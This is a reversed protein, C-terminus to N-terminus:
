TTSGVAERVATGLCARGVAVLDGNDASVDVDIVGVTRGIRRTIARATLATGIAPRLYDTHLSITPVGQRLVCSAAFCAVTDILSAIAGGHIQTSGSSREVFPTMPLRMTMVGAAHNWELAVIQLAHVFPSADLEAQIAPITMPEALRM